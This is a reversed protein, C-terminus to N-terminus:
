FAMGIGGIMRFNVDTQLGNTADVIPIGASLFAGFKGKSLRVGPSLYIIDGGSNIQQTGSVENEWRKEGNLELM